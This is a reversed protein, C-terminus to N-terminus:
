AKNYRYTATVAAHDSITRDKDGMVQDDLLYDNYVRLEEFSWVRYKSHDYFQESVLIHDLSERKAAYIHTYYVDRLSRYQQLQQSSFLGIDAERGASSKLVTQYSPEGTIIGTSVALGADNLDGLVVVPTDTGAMEKGILCFLAAAEASRQIQALVSGLANKIKNGLTTFSLNGKATLGNGHIKHLDQLAAGTLDSPRKSKLHAVFVQVTKFKNSAIRVEVPLQLVPRSFKTLNVNVKPGSQGGGAGKLIVEPPFDPHWTPNGFDMNTALAVSVDKTTPALGVLQDAEFPGHNVAADVIADRSWIEQFGVLFGGDAPQMEGLTHGIWAVKEEYSKKTYFKPTTYVSKNADQLNLVNFTGFTVHYIKAM